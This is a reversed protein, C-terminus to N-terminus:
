GMSRVPWLGLQLVFWCSPLHRYRLVSGANYPSMGVRPIMLSMGVIAPSKDNGTSVRMIESELPDAVGELILVERTFAHWDFAGPEQMCWQRVAELNAPLLDAVHIERARVAFPLVHHLTPGIGFELVSASPPLKQAEQVLFRLTHLEEIEVHSYYTALYAAPDWQRFDASPLRQIARKLARHPVSAM